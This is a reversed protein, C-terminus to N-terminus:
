ARKGLWVAVGFHVLCVAAGLVFVWEPGVFKWVAGLLGSVTVALVHDVSLGFSLNEMVDAPVNFEVWHIYDKKEGGSEEMIAYTNEAAAKRSQVCLSVTLIFLIVLQAGIVAASGSHEKKRM